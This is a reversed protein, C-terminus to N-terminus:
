LKDLRRISLATLLYFLLGMGVLVAWSEVLKGEDYPLQLNETAEPHHFCNTVEDGISPTMPDDPLTTCLITSEAIEEMDVTVGLAVMSWRTTTFYSIIESPKDRLDFIIGAFFFQFFVLIVLVYMAMEPSKALSSVFLGIGISAVMTIFLTIFMEVQPSFYLGSTPLDVGTSLVVLYLVCQIFAFISFVMVKSLLYPLVKLNVMRERLYITRELILENSPVYMGILVAELAIIFVFVRTDALPVYSEMITRAATVPDAIISLDGTLVDPTSIILQLIATFPFLAALLGLTFMDAFLVNMARRTLVGFQRFLRRIGFRIRRIAESAAAVRRSKQREVVYERYYEGKRGTFVDRWEEGRNEIREYIDAFDDVEFFELAEQPPGFFVLKGQSLFAVHDVQVINATAHTILVVTRGQDAMRRLTYMMKKELGPDLGSTPEDLYLLKPDALLEAAISVRKRQGGSLNKVRTNRIVETDMNVTELVDSVRKERDESSVDPPLRLLASYNLAREVTLATHLINSQPVYGIQDRFDEIEQYFDRGNINVEGDAPHSGILANMLTTKGAGSGGVVAVFERPFVSMSIDEMIRLPGQRTRVDKTLGVVDVRMGHSNYQTLRGDDFILLHSGIQILDGDTLETQSVQQDNVFTGNMSGLDEIYYDEGHQVIQAHRRSAKLSDLVLDCDGERGILIVESRAIETKDEESLSYGQYPPVQEDPNYFVGGISIGFTDDGIRITDGDILPTPTEPVIRVGNVMTGNTSISDLISFGQDTRKIVAHHKSIYRLSEPFRIDADPARGLIVVNKKIPLYVDKGDVWRLKLYPFNEPPSTPLDMPTSTEVEESEKEVEEFLALAKYQFVMRIEHGLDVRGELKVPDKRKRGNVFVGHKSNLDALIFDIGERRIEFHNRSISLLGYPVSIQNEEQQRGIRTVEGELHFVQRKGDPWFVELSPKEIMLTQNSKEM